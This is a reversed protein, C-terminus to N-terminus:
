GLRVSHAAANAPALYGNGAFRVSVRLRVPNHASGGPIHRFTTQTSFTCDPQVPVLGGGIVRRGRQFRVVIGGTCELSSPFAAPGHVSGSTTFTYPARRDRGPSTHSGVRPIPRPSPETIFTADVGAAVVSGGHYAVVRYHWTIGPQLGNLTQQVTVPASGAPVTGGITKYGYATSLGIEFLWTTAAGHPNIVASVTATNPGVLSAPGTAADPPATGATKFTRDASASQGSRNQATLRYHYVTGPLLHTITTKVAVPKTGHGAGHSASTLGYQNTLGWQFSYSTDSGNPNVTGHLVASSSTISTPSQTSITPSSGAYAVAAGFVVCVVGVLVLLTRKM